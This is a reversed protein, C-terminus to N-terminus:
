LERSSPHYAHEELFMQLNAIDTLASNDKYLTLAKELHLSAHDRLNADNYMEGLEQHSYAVWLYNNEEKALKLAAQRSELSADFDGLKREAEGLNLMSYFLRESLESSKQGQELRLRSCVTIAKECLEKTTTWNEELAAVYGQQQLVLSLALEDHTKVALSHAKIFFSNFDQSKLHFKMAGITSLLIVMRNTNDLHKALELSKLYCNLADQHNAFLIRYTDGLRAFLYHASEIDNLEKALECANHLLKLSRPSHGRALYYADGVSLQSMMEVFLEPSEYQATQVGGLINGIEADLADFNRQHKTLFSKGAQMITNERLNTNAKAFSFVLDHLRYSIIDSGAQTQRDTLGRKQLEILADETDEENRRLALALLEPTTSTTHLSGCGLLAEYAPDSLNKATTALLSAVSERGEEVFGVPTKMSHPNDKIRTLLDKPNITEALLTLGAIRVALPHDGLLGCLNNAHKNEALTQQSQHSLLDIADNRELRGVDLRKLNPWRQRATVIFALTEPLADQLKSLAYSNWADDLIFLQTNQRLIEKLTESPNESQSLEQQANFARAIADFLSEASDDGAQVWLVTGSNQELWQKAYSAALASKGTGGFGHLLIRNNRKLTETIEKLLKNRGILKEPVTPVNSPNNLVLATKGTSGSSREIEQLLALTEPLPTVDLEEKLSQKLIDFQKLAGESNGRAHELRMISRHMDEDLKDKTLVQRGLELAADYQKNKELLELQARLIDTHQENLQSRIGAVWNDFEPAKKVEFSKLFLPDTTENWIEFAKAYNGQSISEELNQLDTEANLSLLQGDSLLWDDVGELGRIESLAVRVSATKTTNWLLEALAKRHMPEYQCALYCLMAMAKAGPAALEEGKYFLRPLGLLKLELM